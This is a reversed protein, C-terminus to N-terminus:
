IQIWLDGVVPNSPATSSQTIKKQLADLSTQLNTIESIVHTHSSAAKADLTTQLNTITSIAQTGTHNARNLLTADTSNATAGTAIGNLKTQDAASILGAVTTTATAHTHGSTAYDGSATTAATGLGLTTRMAAATTDDLLTLAFSSVLASNLKADLSSQLNTISAITHADALNRNTLVSHDTTGGGGGAITIDGSGLLSIGNISKINTQNVLTAQKSDLSSQLNVITSIAQTGSHNARNLLTADSSNATANIAVTDLKTKDQYSMLGNVVTSVLSNNAKNDLVGQLATIDSVTLTISGSGLLSQGAITKVTSGSVLTDQKGALTSSLNTIDSINHTHSVNAKGALTTSLSDLTSKYTNSFNNESLGFGTVKDVKTNLAPTIWSDNYPTPITALVASLGTISSIPHADVANRNLIQNHELKTLDPIDNLLDLQETLQVMLPLRDYIESLKDLQTNEFGAVQNIPAQTSPRLAM